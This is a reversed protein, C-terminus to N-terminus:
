NKDTPPTTVLNLAEEPHWSLHRQRAAISTATTDCGNRILALVLSRIFSFARPAAGTRVRSADEGMTVDRVYHLRNEIGWHGRDLALLREPSARDPSLSTIAFAAETTTKGNVTRTREIRVVQQVGPWDLYNRLGAHAILKRKEIRNGHANCSVTSRTEADHAKQGSPPSAAPSPTRSTM